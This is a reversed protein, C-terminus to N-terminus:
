CILHSNEIHFAAIPQVSKISLYQEPLCETLFNCKETEQMVSLHSEIVSRTM